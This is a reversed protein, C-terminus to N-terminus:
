GEPAPVIWDKDKDWGCYPCVTGGYIGGGCRPCEFVSFATPAEKLKKVALKWIENLKKEAEKDGTAVKAYLDDIAERYSDYVYEGPKQDLEVVGGGEPQDELSAKDKKDQLDKKEQEEDGEKKEDEEKKRLLNPILTLYMEASDLDAPSKINEKIEDIKEQELGAETMQVIYTDKRREFEKQAIGVLKTEKEDHQTKLTDYEETKTKKETELGEIQERLKRVEENLDDKEKQEKDIAEQLEKEKEDRVVKVVHQTVKEIVKKDDAGDVGAEIDEASM